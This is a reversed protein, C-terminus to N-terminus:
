SFAAQVDDRLRAEQASTLGAYITMTIRPDAHRLVRAVRNPPLGAGLLISACSHRLDHPSLPKPGGLKARKGAARIARCANHRGQPKGSDSRFVLVSGV